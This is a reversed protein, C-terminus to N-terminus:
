RGREPWAGQSFVADGFIRGGRLSVPAIKRGQPLEAGVLALPAKMGLRVNEAGCVVPLVGFAGANVRCVKLKDAQPHPLVQVVEGVVVKSFKPAASEIGEVELGAMTLQEVLDLTTVPPNVHERLWAESFRM